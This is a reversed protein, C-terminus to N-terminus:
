DALHCAVKHEGGGIALLKPNEKDCRDFALPCRTRFRCGSPPHSSSVPDGELLIPNRKRAPDPHLVSSLLAQTYPHRADRYLQDASGREVIQGCYMVVVQDAMVRAASLDHTIFIYATEQEEQFRKMLNLIEARTSTDLASIAEDAVVLEPQPLMARALCVKQKQGGSLEHPYRSLFREPPILGVQEFLEAIRSNREGASTPGRLRFPLGVSELIRRRPNLSAAPNQFVMQLRGSVSRRVRHARDLREGGLWVAGGTVETLGVLARGLTTKGSGSEGVVALTKRRALELTVGDVARVVIRRRLAGRSRHYHVQLNELRVLPEESGTEPMSSPLPLRGAISEAGSDGTSSSSGPGHDALAKVASILAASHPHKPNEYIERTSGSEVLKGASMVYVRQCLESVIGFDHSILLTALGYKKKSRELLDLIAAQVTLDLATTPEDAILLSPRGALAMALLVRQQMGGSLQHPYARGVEQLDPIRVEDLLRWIEERLRSRTVIAHAILPEAIQDYVTMVPNLFSMPDQFVYAIRRGRIARLEEESSRLLDHGEFDIAEAEVRARKPTLGTIALGTMTKGCGTEGVLGVTEGSAIDLSVGDVVRLTDLPTTFSVKLERVRLLPVRTTM